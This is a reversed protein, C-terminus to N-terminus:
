ICGALLIHITHIGLWERAHARDAAVLAARVPLQWVVAASILGAAAVAAAAAAAAATALAGHTSKLHRPQLGQGPSANPQLLAHRVYKLALM